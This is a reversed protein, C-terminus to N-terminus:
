FLKAYSIIVTKQLVWIKMSMNVLILRLNSEEMEQFQLEMNKHFPWDAGCPVELRMIVRYYHREWTWIKAMIIMSSYYWFLTVKSTTNTGFKVFIPRNTHKMTFDTATSPLESSHLVNSPFGGPFRWRYYTFYLIVKKLNKETGVSSKRLLFLSLFPLLATCISRVLCLLIHPQAIEFWKADKHRVSTFLRTPAWWLGRTACFKTTEVGDTYIVIM